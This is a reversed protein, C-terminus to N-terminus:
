LGLSNILEERQSHYRQKVRRQLKVLATIAAFTGFSSYEPPTSILLAEVLEPTGTGSSSQLQYQVESSRRSVSNTPLIDEIGVSPEDAEFDDLVDVEDDFEDLVSIVERVPGQDISEGDPDLIVMPPTTILSMSRGTREAILERVSTPSQPMSMLGDILSAYATPPPEYVTQVGVSETSTAKVPHDDVATVVITSSQLELKPIRTPPTITPSSPSVTPNPRGKVLDGTIVIVGQSELSYVKPPRDIAVGALVNLSQERRSPQTAEIRVPDSTSPSLFPQRRDPGAVPSDISVHDGSYTRLRTRSETQSATSEVHVSEVSLPPLRNVSVTRPISFSINSLISPNTLRGTSAPDIAM